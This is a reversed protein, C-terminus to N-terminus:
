TRRARARAPQAWADRRPPMLPELESARNVGFREPLAASLMIDQATIGLWRAIKDVESMTFPYAGSIRGAITPRSIGLVEGLDSRQRNARAIEARVAGAVAEHFLRDDM